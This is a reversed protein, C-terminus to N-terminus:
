SEQRKTRWARLESLRSPEAGGQGRQSVGVEHFTYKLEVTARTLAEIASTLRDIRDALESVSEVSLPDRETAASRHSQDNQTEGDQAQQVDTNDNTM